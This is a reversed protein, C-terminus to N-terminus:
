ADPALGKTATASKTGWTLEGDSGGPPQTETWTLGPTWTAAGDIEVMEATIECTAGTLAMASVEADATTHHIEATATFSSGTLRCNEGITFDLVQAQRKGALAISPLTFNPMNDDNLVDKVGSVTVRPWANSSTVAGISAIAHTDGGNTIPGLKLTNLNVAAQVEYEVEIADGPGAEYTGRGAYNGNEDAADETGTGMPTITSGKLILAASALGFYDTMNKFAM